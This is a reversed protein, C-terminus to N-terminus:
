KRWVRVPGTFLCPIWWHFHFFGTRRVASSEEAFQGLLQESSYGAKASKYGYVDSTDFFTIGAAMLANYAGQLDAPNFEGEKPRYGPDSVFGSTEDGWAMTGVGMGNPIDLKSKSKLM